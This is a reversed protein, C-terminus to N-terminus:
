RSSSQEKQDLANSGRQFRQKLVIDQPYNGFKSGFLNLGGVNFTDQKIGIRITIFKGSQLHLDELRTTSIRMGDIFSAQGTVRWIKLLGFQSNHKEWWFPTHNGRQGGFDAPSTWTGIECSNIWVTIDSPWESHHLPAESCVEFSLELSDLRAGPPTRNPFRYEVYGQHFWLLQTYIREPEFFSAPEDLRGIIGLEGALGCPPMTKAEVYAGLPMSTDVSLDAASDERFSDAPLQIIIRDYVRTCIKQLGRKAPQLDTRILGSKKLINIHLTATSQPLDLTEAIELVSCNQGALLRLIGLRKESGLAKTVLELQDLHADGAALNLIRGATSPDAPHVPDAPHNASNM